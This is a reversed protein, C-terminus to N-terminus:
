VYYNKNQEYLIDLIDDIEPISLFKILVTPLPLENIKQDAQPCLQNLIVMRCRQKLPLVINKEVEHEKLLTQLDPHIINKLPHNIDLGHVGRSCGYALLMEAEYIFSRRVAAEFPLVGVIDPCNSRTNVDVGSRIMRAVMKIHGNHIAINIASPCKNYYRGTNPNAGHEVLLEVMKVSHNQCASMLLTQHSHRMGYSFELIYENNLSYNHNCLLYDVVSVRDLYVAYRLAEDSRYLQCGYEDLLKVVEPRYHRGITEKFLEAKLQIGNIIHRSMNHHSAECAELREQPIDATTTVGLNLLYRVAEINGSKVAWYLINLGNKDIGHNEILCKLVDMNGERAAITWVNDGADDAIYLDARKHILKEVCKVNGVQAAYMIPTRNHYFCPKNVDAVSDLLADFIEMMIDSPYQSNPHLLLIADILPSVEENVMDTVAPIYQFRRPIAFTNADAGNAILTKVCKINANNVAYMLATFEVDDKADVLRGELEEIMLQLLEHHDGTARCILHYPTPTGPTLLDECSWKTGYQLLLTLTSAVESLRRNNATALHIGHALCGVFDQHEPNKELHEKFLKHEGHNLAARLLTRTKACNEWIQEEPLAVGSLFTTKVVMTMRFFYFFTNWFIHQKCNQILAHTFNIGNIQNVNDHKM